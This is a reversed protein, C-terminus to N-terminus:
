PGPGTSCLRDVESIHDCQTGDASMAVGRSRGARDSTANDSNGNRANRNKKEPRLASTYWTIHSRNSDSSKPTVTYAALVTSAPKM